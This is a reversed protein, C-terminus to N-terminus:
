AVGAAPVPQADPVPRTMKQGLLGWLFGGTIAQMGMASLVAVLSAARTIAGPELPGFGRVAWIGVSVATAALALALLGGGATCAVLTSSLRAPM